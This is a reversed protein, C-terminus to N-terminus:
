NDSVSYGSLCPYAPLTRSQRSHQVIEGLDCVAISCVGDLISAADFVAEEEKKSLDNAQGYFDVIWPTPVQQGTLRKPVLRALPTDFTFNQLTLRHVGTPLRVYPEFASGPPPPPPAPPAPLM